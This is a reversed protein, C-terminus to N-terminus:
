EMLFGELVIFILALIGFVISSVRLIQKDKKVLGIIIGILSAIVSLMFLPGILNIAMGYEEM